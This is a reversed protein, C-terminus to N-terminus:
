FPVDTQKNKALRKKEELKRKKAQLSRRFTDETMMVPYLADRMKSNRDFEEALMKPLEKAWRGVHSGASGVNIFCMSHIIGEQPVRKGANFIEVANAGAWKAKHIGYFRRGYQVAVLFDPNSKAGSGGGLADKYEKVGRLVMDKGDSNYPLGPRDKTRFNLNNAVKCFYRVGKSLAWEVVMKQSPFRAYNGAKLLWGESPDFIMEEAFDYSWKKKSHNWNPLWSDKLFPLATAKVQQALRSEGVLFTSVFHEEEDDIEGLAQLTNMEQLVNQPNVDYQMEGEDTEMGQSVSDSLSDMQFPNSRLLDKINDKFSKKFLGIAMREDNLVESIPKRTKAAGKGAEYPSASSSPTTADNLLEEQHIDSIGAKGFLAFLNRAGSAFNIFRGNLASIYQNVESDSFANNPDVGLYGALYLYTGVMNLNDYLGQDLAAKLKKSAVRKIAKQMPTDASSVRNMKIAFKLIRLMRKNFFRM